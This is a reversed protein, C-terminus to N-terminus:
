QWRDVEWFKERMKSRESEERIQKLLGRGVQKSGQGQADEFQADSSNLMRSNLMRSNLM